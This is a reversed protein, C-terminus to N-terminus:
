YLQVKIVVTFAGQEANVTYIDTVYDKNPHHTELYRTVDFLVHALEDVNMKTDDLAGISVHPIILLAGSKNEQIKAHQTTVICSCDALQASFCEANKAYGMHMHLHFVTQGGRVGTHFYAHNYSGSMMTLTPASQAALEFMSALLCVNGKNLEKLSTIHSVPIVLPEGSLSKIVKADKNEALITLKKEKLSKPTLGACFVDQGGHVHVHFYLFFTLVVVSSILILKKIM